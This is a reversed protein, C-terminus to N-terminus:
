IPNFVKGITKGTKKFGSKAKDRKRRKTDNDDDSDNKHSSGFLKYKKSRRNKKKDKVYSNDKSNTSDDSDDSVPFKSEIESIDEIEEVELVAPEPSLNIQLISQRMSQRKKQAEFPDLSLHREWRFSALITKHTRKKIQSNRISTGKDLRHNRNWFPIEDVRDCYALHGAGSHSLIKVTNTHRRYIDNAGNIKISGTDTVFVSSKCKNFNLKGNAFETPSIDIPDLALVIELSTDKSDDFKSAVLLAIKGGIGHGVIGYKEVTTYENKLYLFADHIISAIYHHNKSTSSFSNYRYEVVVQNVHLLVRRISTYSKLPMSAGTLLFTIGIANDKPETVTM